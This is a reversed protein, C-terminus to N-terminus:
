RDPRLVKMERPGEVGLEQGTARRGRCLLMWDSLGGEDFSKGM